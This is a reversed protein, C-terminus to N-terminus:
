EGAIERLESDILELAAAVSRARVEVRDGALNLKVARDGGPGSIGLYVLGQPKGEFSGPGAVGTTALGWDADFEIRAGRAMEQAVEPDVTGRQKMLEENVGLAKQKAAASYAVVGGALVKSTGPVDVLAGVLLGGTLSEACSLLEGRQQLQTIVSQALDALALLDSRKSLESLDPLESM